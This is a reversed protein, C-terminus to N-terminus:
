KCDKTYAIFEDYDRIYDEEEYPHSALALAVTGTTFDTMVDWVGPPILVGKNARNLRVVKENTGDTLRVDFSGAIALLVIACEKHAHGGRTEGGPVDYIYFVRRISFPVHRAGEVFSLNGRPDCIKPFELVRVKDLPTGCDNKETM